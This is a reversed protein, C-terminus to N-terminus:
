ATAGMVLELAQNHLLVSNRSSVRCRLRGFQQLYYLREDGETSAVHIATNAADTTILIAQLSDPSAHQRHQGRQVNCASFASQQLTGPTGPCMAEWHQSPELDQHIPQIDMLCGHRWCLVAPDM